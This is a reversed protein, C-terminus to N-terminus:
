SFLYLLVALQQTSGQHQRQEQSMVKKIRERFGLAGGTVKLDECFLHYTASGWLPTFVGPNTVFILSHHDWYLKWSRIVDGNTVLWGNSTDQNVVLPWHQWLMVSHPPKLLNLFLLEWCHHVPERSLRAGSLQQVLVATHHGGQLIVESMVELVHLSVVDFSVFPLRSSQVFAICHHM